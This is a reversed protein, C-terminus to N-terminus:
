SSPETFLEIEGVHVFDDRELRLVELRVVSTDVPAPLDIQSWVREPVGQALRRGEGPLPELVWDCSSGIPFVRVARLRVPRDLTVTLELPNTQDSVALTEVNGDVLVDVTQRVRGDNSEITIQGASLGARLDVRELQELDATGPEASEANALTRRSPPPSSSEEPATVVESQPALAEDGGGGCALATCLVAM